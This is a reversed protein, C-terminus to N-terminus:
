SGCVLSPMKSILPWCGVLRITDFHKLWFVMVVKHPVFVKSVSSPRLSSSLSMLMGLSAISAGFSLSYWSGLGWCGFEVM